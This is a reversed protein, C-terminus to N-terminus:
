GQSQDINAVNCYTCDVSFVNQAQNITDNIDNGTAKVNSINGNFQNTKVAVDTSNQDLYVNSINGGKHTGNSDTIADEAADVM